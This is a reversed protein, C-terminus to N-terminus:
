RRRQSGNIRAELQNLLVAVAEFLEEPIEQDLELQKLAAVLDPREVVPIGYRQAIKVIEDASLQEGKVCVTPTRQADSNYELGIASNFKSKSM